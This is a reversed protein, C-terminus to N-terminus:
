SVPKHSLLGEAELAAQVHPRCAVRQQFASIATFESLTV